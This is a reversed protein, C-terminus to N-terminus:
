KFEEMRECERVEQGAVGAVPIREWGVCYDQM